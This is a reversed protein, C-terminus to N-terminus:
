IRPPQWIEALHSAPIYKKYFSTYTNQSYFYSGEKLEMKSNPLIVVPVAICHGCDKFPLQMDRDDHAVDSDYHVSLFELFTIESNNQKHELYHQVLVPLKFLQHCETFSIAYVCIVMLATLKRM